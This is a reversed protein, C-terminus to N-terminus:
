GRLSTDVMTFYVDVKILNIIILPQPNVERAKKIKDQKGINKKVDEYQEKTFPINNEKLSQVYKDLDVITEGQRTEFTNNIDKLKFDLM